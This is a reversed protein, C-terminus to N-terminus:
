KLTVTVVSSTKSDPCKVFLSRMSLFAAGLLGRPTRQPWFGRARTIFVSLMGPWVQLLM